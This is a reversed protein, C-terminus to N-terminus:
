IKEFVKGKNQPFNFEIEKAIKLLGYDSLRKGSIGIGFPMNFNLNFGSPIYFVPLHLYTMILNLDDKEKEGKLPAVSNTAPFLMFDIYNKDLWNNFEQVYKQHLDILKQFEESKVAKFKNVFNKFSDSLEEGRSELDQTFYYSLSFSYIKEHMNHIKSVYDPLAIDLFNYGNKILFTKIEEVHLLSEKSFNVKDINPIIFNKSELEKYTHIKKNQPYNASVKFTTKMVEELIDFSKVFFGITDFPDCTKLVGTRPVLGYSPKFGRVGCYSAPRGISGATQSALSFDIEKDVLINVASGASSTGVTASHNWPNLVVTEEHVAFESTVTKGICIDGDSILDTIVRSNNGAIFNKYSSSGMETPYVYTNFIDKASFYFRKNTPKAYFSSSTNDFREYMENSPIFKFHKFKKNSNQISSLIKNTKKM